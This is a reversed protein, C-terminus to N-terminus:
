RESAYVMCGEIFSESKGGCTEPDSISNAKAWDYGAQHGSCDETCAYGGFTRESQADDVLEDIQAEVERPIEIDDLSRDCAKQRGTDIDSDFMLATSDDTADLCEQDLDM